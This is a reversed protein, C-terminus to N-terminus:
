GVGVHIYIHQNQCLSPKLGSEKAMENVIINVTDLVQDINRRERPDTIIALIDDVYSLLEVLRMTM